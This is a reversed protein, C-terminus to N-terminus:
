IHIVTYPRILFEVRCSICRDKEVSRHDLWPGAVNLTPFTFESLAYM